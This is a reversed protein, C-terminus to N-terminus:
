MEIYREIVAEEWQEVLWKEFARQRAYLLMEPTFPRNAERAEV